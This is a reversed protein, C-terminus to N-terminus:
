EDDWFIMFQIGFNYLRHAFATRDIPITSVYGNLLRFQMTIKGKGIALQDVFRDISDDSIPQDYFLHKAKFYYRPFTLNELLLRQHNNSGDDVGSTEYIFTLWDRQRISVKDSTPLTSLFLMMISSLEGVEVGYHIMLIEAFSHGVIMELSINNNLNTANIRNNFLASQYRQIILKQVNQYWVLSVTTVLLPAKVLRIKFETVIVFLGGGAGRLAWFLESEHTDNITLLEGLFSVHSCNRLLHIM